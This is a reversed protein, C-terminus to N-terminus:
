SGSSPAKRFRRLYIISAISALALPAMVVAFVVEARAVATRPLLSVAGVGVVAAVLLAWGFFANAPYWIDKSSLTVRTRFGYFRNPPVRRLILPVSLVGFIVFIFSLAPM